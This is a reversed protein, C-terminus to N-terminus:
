SASSSPSDKGKYSTAVTPKHVSAYELALQNQVVRIEVVDVARRRGLCADDYEEDRIEQAWAARAPTISGAYAFGPFVSFMAVSNSAPLSAPTPKCAAPM